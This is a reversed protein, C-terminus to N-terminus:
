NESLKINLFNYVNKKFQRRFTPSFYLYIFFNFYSTLSSIINSLFLYFDLNLKTTETYSLKKKLKYITEPLHGIFFSLCLIMIMTSMKKEKKTLQNIKSKLKNDNKTTRQNISSNKQGLKSIEMQFKNRRFSMTVMLNLICVVTLFLFDKVFYLYAIPKLSSNNNIKLMDPQVRISEDSFSGNFYKSKYQSDNEIKYLYLYPINITFSLIILCIIFFELSRILKLKSNSLLKVRYKYTFNKFKSMKKYRSFAIKAEILVDFTYLSNCVYIKIFKEYIRIIQKDILSSILCYEGCNLIGYFIFITLIISDSISYIFLYFYISYRRSQKCRNIKYFTSLSFFEFILGVFCILPLIHYNLWTSFM